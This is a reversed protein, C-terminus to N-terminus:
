TEVCVSQLGAPGAAKQCRFLAPCRDRASCTMSCYQRAGDTICVGAACDAATDCNAGADVSGKKTKARGTSTPLPAAEALAQKILVSLADARVGVDWPVVSGESPESAASPGSLVGVIQASSEDIVPGGCGDDCPTERLRLDTDDTEVVTVRDRVIKTPRAGMSAFGVTRVLAGEAVGTSRVVMPEIGDVLTDLLLVAIDADCDAGSPVLVARGRATSQATADNEGVVVSISPPDLLPADPSACSPLDHSATVCHRATLVADQAILTGACSGGDNSALYVVAPDAGPDPVGAIPDLITAHPAGVLSSPTSAEGSCGIGASVVGSVVVLHTFALVATRAFTM